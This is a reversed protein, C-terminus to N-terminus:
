LGFSVTVIRSNNHTRVGCMRRGDVADEEEEENLTTWFMCKKIKRKMAVRANRFFTVGASWWVVFNRCSSFSFYALCKGGAVAMALVLLLLMMGTFFLTTTSPTPRLLLAEDDDDDDDDDAEM